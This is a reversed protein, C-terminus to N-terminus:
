FEYRLSLQVTKPYNVIMGSGGAGPIGFTADSWNGDLAAFTHRNFANLLDARFIIAHSEYLTTRKIVSFDENLYAPSRINGITRAINGFAYGRQAINSVSNPDTFAGCNFYGNTPQVTEACSFSVTSGPAHLALVANGVNFSSSGPALFSQGPTRDFCINGSNYPIPTASYCNFVTPAGSQYRQIGSVQWGGIVKGVAGGKNIFRKGPGFPLEYVYSLVLAHPVDQYSVAKNNRLNFSDQAWVGSNFATFLPYNSDADTLTKSFTYSAMLNLGNRFRRELKVLLANYTSQGLNELGGDTGITNFQPFPKLVQGVQLGSGWLTPMWSPVTVGLNALAAAGQCSNYTALLVTPGYTGGQPCVASVPVTGNLDYYRPNLNNVEALSSRLRTSHMGVYGVSLILDQALQKQLELNWNQVMGPKGYQPAVYNPSGGNFLTPDNANSPPTYAPFGLDPSQQPSFNDASKFDPTASAGSTFTGGFDSYTLPAYYISYGGRVVINRIRGFLAEPAYAFGVRPGFDKFYTHGLSAFPGYVIAGLQGPTGPNPATV